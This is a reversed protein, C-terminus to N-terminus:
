WSGVGTSDLFNGYMPAAFGGLADEGAREGTLVEFKKAEFAAAQSMRKDARCLDAAAGYVLAASVPIEPVDDNKLLRRPVRRWIV